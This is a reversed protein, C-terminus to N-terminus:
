GFCDEPERSGAATESAAESSEGQWEPEVKWALAQSFGNRNTEPQEGQPSQKSDMARPLSGRGGLLALEMIRANTKTNEGVIGVEALEKMPAPREGNGGGTARKGAKTAKKGTRVM